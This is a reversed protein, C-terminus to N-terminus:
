AMVGHQARRLEDIVVQCGTTTNLFARPEDGLIPHYKRLWSKFKDVDGFLEEGVQFVHIINLIREGTAEDLTKKRSFTKLSSPLLEEFEAKSSKIVKLFNWFMSTQIGKRAESIIAMHSNLGLNQIGYLALPESVTLDPAPEDSPEPYKKM